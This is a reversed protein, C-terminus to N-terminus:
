CIHKESNTRADTRNKSGCTVEAASVVAGDATLSRAAELGVVEDISRVM